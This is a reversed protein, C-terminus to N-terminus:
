AHVLPELIFRLTYSLSLTTGGVQGSFFDCTSQSLFYVHLLGVHETLVDYIKSAVVVVGGGWGM